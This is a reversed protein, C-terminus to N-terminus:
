RGGAKSIAERVRDVLILTSLGVLGDNQPARGDRRASLFDEWLLDLPEIQSLDESILCGDVQKALLDGTVSAKEGAVWIKRISAAHVRSACLRAHVGGAFELEVEAQDLRGDSGTGQAQINVVEQSVVRSVWDLDHIMVDQIVDIDLGRSSAPAYREVRIREPKGSKKLVAGLTPQFWEAYGVGLLRNGRAAAEVLRMGEAVDLAMPKEVIVDVGESLLQMAVDVHAGTPVAIVAVDIEEVCDALTSGVDGGFEEAVSASRGPHHDIVCSLTCDDEVEVRRAIARAHLRGM